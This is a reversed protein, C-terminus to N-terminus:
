DGYTNTSAPEAAPEPLNCRCVECRNDDCWQCSFCTTCPHKRGTKGPEDPIYIKGPLGPHTTWAM